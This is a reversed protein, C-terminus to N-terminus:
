RYYAKIKGWTTTEVSIIGCSKGGPHAGMDVGGEGAGL